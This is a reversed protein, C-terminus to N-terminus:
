AKHGTASYTSDFAALMNLKRRHHDMVQDKMREEQEYTQVSEERSNACKAGASPYIPAAHGWPKLSDVIRRKTFQTHDRQGRSWTWGRSIVIVFSTVIQDTRVGGTGPPSKQRPSSKEGKRLKKLLFWRRCQSLWARRRGALSLGGLRLGAGCQPVEPRIASPSPSVAPSTPNGPPTGAIARGVMSGFLARFGAGWAPEHQELRQLPERALEMLEQTFQAIHTTTPAPATEPHSADNGADM